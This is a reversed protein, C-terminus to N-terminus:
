TQYASFAIGTCGFVSPTVAAANATSTDINAFVAVSAVLTGVDAGIAALHAIVTNIKAYVAILAVIAYRCAAPAFVAVDATSADLDAFVTVTAFVTGYHTGVAALYTDIARCHTNITCSAFFTRSQAIVTLLM